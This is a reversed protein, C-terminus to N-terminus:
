GRLRKMYLGIFGTAGLLSILSGYVWILSPAALDNILGAVLPSIGMAVRYVMELMGMYRARMQDPALNSVYSTVTPNIVMEGITLVMMAGVFFVFTELFPISGLAFAYILAGVAMMLFPSFHSAWRTTTYQFLVVILANMSFLLSSQNELIQFNQKLYIPMLIFMEIFGMVSFTYFLLITIFHRDNWVSQNSQPIEKKAEPRTEQLFWHALGALLLLLSATTWFATQFSYEAIIWGGILPGTVVGLNIAMRLLAYAQARQLNPLLDAVMANGGISFLPSAMGMVAMLVLWSGSSTAQTMLLLNGAQLVLGTIMMVKRGYLDM